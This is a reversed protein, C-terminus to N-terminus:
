TGEHMSGTRYGQLDLSVYKFGLDKLKRVITKRMKVARTLDGVCVELRAMDGHMRVRIQKIGLRRLYEEARDLRVLDKRTIDSHFPFRSALCAFSPKDWTPLKLRRSFKRIDSKTMGSELLPSRVGLEKAAKRGYRIDKLDDYNTGDLVYKMGYKKRIADLRKFLEKKCYYCRNVPNRKFNAIGLEDTHITLHRAGISKAIRKAEKYETDPYTESKATVALVNDLGLTDVAAKLLFTSDLGGSYAIVVRRLQRLMKHLRALKNM